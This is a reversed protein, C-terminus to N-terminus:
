RQIPITVSGVAGLEADFAIVRVKRVAPAVPIAESFGIEGHTAAAFQEPTLTVLAPHSLPKLAEGYAVFAVWVKGGDRDRAPGPLLDAADIHVEFRRDQPHVPDSSVMARLGIETAEFPSHAAGEAQVALERSGFGSPAPGSPSVLPALAYFGHETQLRVEKRGCIVRIKHHKGDPNLPATYYAIEYNARSDTRAQQIADGARGSSYGRGGTVSTFEDLTGVATGAGATSQDVTYMVIQGQKLEEAFWRLPYTFDLDSQTSPSFGVIPIGRTVWVLNKRGSAPAMQSRLQRLAQMSLDFRVKIDRDDVPKLHVLDKLATRLMPAINRTWPEAAPTVETDPKPLPHIPYLEGRVTLLYVYLGESSELNQLSDAVQQAIISDNVIRESLLDILVVTAHWAPVTRNSYEGPSPRPQRAWGGTFRCFAIDQRKGDEFLQFEASSLGTVPQGHMDLAVVNLKHLKAHPTEESVAAPIWACLLVGATVLARQM